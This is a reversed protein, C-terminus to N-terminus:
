LLVILLLMIVPLVFTLPHGQFYQFALLLGSGCQDLLCVMESTDFFGMVFAYHGASNTQSVQEKM